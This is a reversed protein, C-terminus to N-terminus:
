LSDSESAREVLDDYKYDCFGKTSLRFVLARCRHEVEESRSACDFLIRQGLAATVDDSSASLTVAARGVAQTLGPHNLESVLYRLNRESWRRHSYFGEYPWLEPPGGDAPDFLPNSEADYIFCSAFHLLTVTRGLTEAQWWPTWLEEIPFPLSSFGMLPEWREYWTPGPPALTLQRDLLALIEGAMFQSVAATEAPQLVETFVKTRAMAPYFHELFAWDDPAEGRLERRWGM